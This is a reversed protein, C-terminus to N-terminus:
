VGHTPLVPSMVQGRVRGLHATLGHSQSKGGGWRATNDAGQRISYSKLSSTFYLFLQSHIINHKLVAASSQLQKRM